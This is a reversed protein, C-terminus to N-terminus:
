EAPAKTINLYPFAEKMIDSALTTIQNSCAAQNPVNPEDIVVYNVIEPNEKALTRAFEGAQRELSVLAAAQEESVAM